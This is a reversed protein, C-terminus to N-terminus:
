VCAPCLQQTAQLVVRQRADCTQHLNTDAKPLAKPWFGYWPAHLVRYAAVLGPRVPFPQAYRPGLRRPMTLAIRGAIGSAPPHKHMCVQVPRISSSRWPQDRGPPTNPPSIASPVGHSSAHAHAQAHTRKSTLSYAGGHLCM